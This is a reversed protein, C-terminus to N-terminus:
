QQRSARTNSIDSFAHTKTAVEAQTSRGSGSGLGVLKKAAEVVRDEYATNCLGCMPKPTTSHWCFFLPEQPTPKRGFYAVFANVRERKVKVPIREGM